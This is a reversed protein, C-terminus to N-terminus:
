QGNVSFNHPESLGTNTITFVVTGVPATEQSLAFAWEWIQVSVNTTPLPDARTGAASFGAFATAAAALAGAAVVALRRVNLNTVGGRAWRTSRPACATRLRRRTARPTSTG